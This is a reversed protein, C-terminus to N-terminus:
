SLLSFFFHRSGPIALMVLLALSEQNLIETDSTGHGPIHWSLVRSMLLM